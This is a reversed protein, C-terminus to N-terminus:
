PTLQGTLCTQSRIHVFPCYVLFMDVSLKESIYFVMESEDEVTDLVRFCLDFKQPVPSNSDGCLCFVFRCYIDNLLILFGAWLISSSSVYFKLFVAIMQMSSAGDTCSFVVFSSFM